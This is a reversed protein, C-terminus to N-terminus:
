NVAKGGAKIFFQYVATVAASLVGIIGWKVVHDKIANNRKIRTELEEIQRDQFHHHRRHDEATMDGFFDFKKHSMIREVRRALEELDDENM